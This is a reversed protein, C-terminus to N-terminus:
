GRRSRAPAGQIASLADRAAQISRTASGTPDLDALAGLGNVLRGIQAILPNIFDNSFGSVFSALM